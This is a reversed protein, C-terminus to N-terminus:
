LGAVPVTGLLSRHSYKKEQKHYKQSDLLESVRSWDWNVVLPDLTCRDRVLPPMGLPRVVLPQMVLPRMVLPPMVLPRVDLPQVVLPRNDLSQVGPTM